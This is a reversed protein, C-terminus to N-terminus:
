IVSWDDVNVWGTTGDCDVVFELVGDRAAASTTATLLEFAGASAVTATDLVTDTAIGMSPNAKLILRARNGNYDTGDGVVSERVYVSIDMTQGSNVAVLKKGSQLKESANIPTLRESPSATRYLGATTDTRISGRRLWTIHNGDIQNHRTSRVYSNLPEEDDMMYQINQVETATDIICNEFLAQIFVSYANSAEFFNGSMDDFISDVFRMWYYEGNGITNSVIVDVCGWTNLNTYGTFRSQPYMVCGACSHIVCGDPMRSRKTTAVYLLGLSSPGYAIGSASGAAGNIGSIRIDDMLSFNRIDIAVSSTTVRGIIINRSFDNSSYSLDAGGGDSIIPGATTGGLDYFVNDTINFSGSTTIGNSSYIGGCEGEDFSCFNIGVAVAFSGSLEVGRKGTGTNGIYQFQVWDADFLGPTTVSVYCSRASNSSRVVVNRTLLIVEAQKPATGLHANTLGATITISSAGAGGSLTRKEYQSYTSGTPAIGISDGNLWGTNTDVGLVTQTAAEDTNLLCYYSNNGSTRSLGQLNAIGGAAVLLGMGGTAVMDFELVASSNRPMPTGTTGINLTGGDWVVLSGSLKLYYNTSATTGYTLVGRNGIDMGNSEAGDVGTGYDTSATSDMTVTFTNGTGAGTVEGVVYFVDGAAVSGPATNTGLFRSWNAATANRYFAANGASSGHIGLAYDAGGDGTLTTAFEFFVWSPNAPLDSANVTLTKTATTGSDASLTVTVTGTTNLRRCFLMVGEIVLLNAITFDEANANYVASTTTNTSASHSEQKARTGTGVGKWTAATTLNGSARSILDAM